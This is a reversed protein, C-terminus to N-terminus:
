GIWDAAFGGYLRPVSGTNATSGFVVINVLCQAVSSSAGSLDIPTDTLSTAADAEDSTLQMLTASASAQSTGTLWAASASTTTTTEFVCDSNSVALLDAAVDLPVLVAAFKVAHGGSSAGGLRVRVKYSSGSARRPIPFPTSATIRYWTDVTVSSTRPTLYSKTVFTSVGPSFAWRVQGMSDAYHDLNNCVVDRTAVPDVFAKAAAYTATAMRIRASHISTGAM